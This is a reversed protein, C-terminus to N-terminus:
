KNQDGTGGAKPRIYQNKEEGEYMTLVISDEAFDVQYLMMARMGFVSFDLQLIGDELFQWKGHWSPKNTHGLQFTGDSFFEFTSDGGVADEWKGLIQNEPSEGCGHLILIPVVLLLPDIRRLKLM